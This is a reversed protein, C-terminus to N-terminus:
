QQNQPTQQTSNQTSNSNSNLGQGFNSQGFGSQGLGQTQGFGQAQGMGPVAGGFNTTPMGPNVPGKLLGGTDATQVYIFLWDKYHDKQYFVRISKEKSLSAVGLIPGGGFTQGNLGPGSASISNSSSGGPSSVNPDSSEANDGTNTQDGNTGPQTGPVNGSPQPNSNQGGFGGPGSQGSFGGGPGGGFPSGGFGGQSQGFGGPSQGQLGQGGAQGLVPGNNLSIDQQHLFKFDLEKGDKDRNIPDKYRRRLYRINNTNELDEIRNPYRGLKKYYHQIARMYATGRHVLELERDRQIQQRISPLVALMGITILALILMLTIMMYGRQNRSRAFKRNQLKLDRM